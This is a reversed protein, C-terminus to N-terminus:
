TSCSRCASSARTACPSACTARAAGLHIRAAAGFREPRCRPQGAGGGREDSCWPRPARRRSLFRSTPQRSSSGAAACTTTSWRALWALAADDLATAPEDLIWLPRAAGAAALRALGIRRRQGQSLVRAPLARQAELGAAALGARVADDDSRGGALSLLARLNEEATLEDKVAPAHGSFAVAARLRADLPRMREGCWAVAGDIAGSLGALIRLLTTKGSGNPGRVLLLQGADLRFDLDSFLHTTGRAAALRHAELYRTPTM